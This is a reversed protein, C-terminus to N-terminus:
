EKQFVYNYINTAIIDRKGTPLFCNCMRCLYGFNNKKWIEINNDNAYRSQLWAKPSYKFSHGNLSKHDFHIVKKLDEHMFFLEVGCIQCNTRIPVVGKEVWSLLNKLRLSRAYELTNSM